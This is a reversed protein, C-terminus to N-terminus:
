LTCLSLNAVMSVLYAKFEEVDGVNHDDGVFSYVFQERDLFNLLLTL